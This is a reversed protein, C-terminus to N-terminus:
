QSRKSDRTTLLTNVTANTAATTQLIQKIDQQIDDVQAKREIRNAEIQAALRADGNTSIGLLGSALIGLIGFIKWMTATQMKKVEELGEQQRDRLEKVADQVVPCPVRCFGNEDKPPNV